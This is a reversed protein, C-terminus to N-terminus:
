SKTEIGSAEEQLKSSHGPPLSVVQGLAPFYLAAEQGQKVYLTAVSLMVRENLGGLGSRLVMSSSM